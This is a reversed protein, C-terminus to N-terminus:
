ARNYSLLRSVIVKPQKPLPDTQIKSLENHSPINGEEALLPINSMKLSVGQQQGSTPDEFAGRGSGRASSLTENESYLEGDFDTM